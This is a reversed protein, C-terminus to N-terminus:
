RRFPRRGDRPKRARFTQFWASPRYDGIGLERNVPDDPDEMGDRSPDLLGLIDTDKFMADVCTDWDYDGPHPPFREVSGTIMDPDDLLASAEHLALHLAMEEGPCRPSPRRGAKLDDALDDFTRAAQRRWVADQRYTIRPYADFILWFDGDDVPDDGHREVDDYAEDSLIELATYLVAATRPTLQFGACRECSEQRCTCCAFLAGFDPSPEDDDTGSLAGRASHGDHRVVSCTTGRSSVADINHVLLEPDLIEILADALDARVQARAEQAADEPSVGDDTSVYIRGDIDDLALQRFADEDIVEVLIEVEIRLLSKVAGDSPM